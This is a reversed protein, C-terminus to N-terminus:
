DKFHYYANFIFGILGGVLLIKHVLLILEIDTM